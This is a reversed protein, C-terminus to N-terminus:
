QGRFNRAPSSRSFKSGPRHEVSDATLPQEVEIQYCIALLLRAFASVDFYCTTVKLYKIIKSFEYPLTEFM